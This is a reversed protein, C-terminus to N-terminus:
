VPIQPQLFLKPGDDPEQHKAARELCSILCLQALRESINRDSGWDHGLKANTGHVTGSRGTDYLRNVDKRLRDENGISLNARILDLIGKRKKGCTLAEMSSCFKVIAMTDADEMCGEHFWLLAQSLVQMMKPRSVEDHAHTVYRIAEGACYFIRDYDSRLEEWKEANLWSIGGPRGSGSSGWGFQEGSSFVLHERLHPQRDYTLGMADLASSPKAFALAIATMALRAAILAKQLGADEGAPGVAVGSVFDSGRTVDLIHRERYENEPLPHGQWAREIRSRSIESVRGGGQIRALWALKPEFRVSGISLPEFDSINCFHCGFAYECEHIALIWDHTRDKVVKLITGADKESLKAPDHGVLATEFARKVMRNWDSDTFESKHCQFFVDMVVRSFSALMGNIEPTIYLVQGNGLNLTSLFPYKSDQFQFPGGPLNAITSLIEALLHNCSNKDNM